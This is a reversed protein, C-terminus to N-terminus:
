FFINEIKYIKRKPMIIFHCELAVLSTGVKKKKCFEFVDAFGGIDTIFIFTKSKKFTIM